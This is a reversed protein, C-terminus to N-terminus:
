GGEQAVGWERCMPKIRQIPLGATHAGRNIFILWVARAVLDPGGTRYLAESLPNRVLRILPCISGSPLPFPFLSSSFPLPFLFFPLPFLFPFLVFLFPGSCVPWVALDISEKRKKRKGRGEKRLGARQGRGPAPRVGGAQQGGM